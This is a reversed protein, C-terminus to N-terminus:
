GNGPRLPRGVALSVAAGARRARRCGAAAPRPWGYRRMIIGLASFFLLAVLDYMDLENGYAGVICFLFGSPPHHLLLSGHLGQLVAQHLGDVIADGDHQRDGLTWITAYMYPAQHTLIATGPQIGVATMGILIIAMSSGGPIGFSCRPSLERMVGFMDVQGDDLFVETYDIYPKRVVVNRFHVHNIVDRKGLYRCVEVPDEGMERTVGCDFTMGNYPSKVLDLYDKWHAFTGTLQESGRSLPVPPDNPHLALRM